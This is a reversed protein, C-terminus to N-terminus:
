DKSAFILNPDNEVQYELPAEKIVRGKGVNLEGNKNMKFPENSASIEFKAQWLMVAQMASERQQNTLKDGNDWKGLEVATRLQSITKEDLNDVLDQYNM